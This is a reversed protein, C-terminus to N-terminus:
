AVADPSRISRASHAVRGGRHRAEARRSRWQGAARRHAPRLARLSDVDGGDCLSWPGAGRCRDRPGRRCRARIAEGRACHKGAAIAALALPLHTSNVTAIYVVDVESSALVEAYSGATAIGHQDAFVRALSANRAGVAVVKQDSNRRLTDVFFGAIEGAGVIGWRLQPGGRLAPARETM